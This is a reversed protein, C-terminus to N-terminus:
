NNYLPTQESLSSEELDNTVSVIDDNSCQISDSSSVNKYFRNAAKIKLVAKQLRKSAKLNQVNSGIDQTPVGRGQIWPHELVQEPTARKTPDRQLLSGILEKVSSSIDDWYPSPFAFECSKIQEYLEADSDAYFPPFGCLLIYLIVGISWMDVSKDYGKLEIIIFYFLNIM